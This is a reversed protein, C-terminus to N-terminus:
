SWDPVSFRLAFYCNRDANAMAFMFSSIFPKLAHLFVDHHFIYQLRKQLGALGLMPLSKALLFEWSGLLALLWSGLSFSGARGCSLQFHLVVGKSISEM